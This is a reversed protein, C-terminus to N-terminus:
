TIYVCSCLVWSSCLFFLARPFLACAPSTSSSLRRTEYGMTRKQSHLEGDGNGEKQQKAAARDLEMGVAARVRIISPGHGSPQNTRIVPANDPIRM